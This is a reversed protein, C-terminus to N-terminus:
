KVGPPYTEHLTQLQLNEIAIVKSNESTSPKKIRSTTTTHEHNDLPALPLDFYFLKDDQSISEEFPDDNATIDTDNFVAFRQLLTRTKKRSHKKIIKFHNQM